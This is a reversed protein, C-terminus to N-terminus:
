GYNVVGNRIVSHLVLARPLQPERAAMENTRGRRTFISALMSDRV